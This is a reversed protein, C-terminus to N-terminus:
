LPSKPSKPGTLCILHRIKICKSCGTGPLWEKMSLRGTMAPRLAPAIARVATGRGPGNCYRRPNVPMHLVPVVRIRSRAMYGITGDATRVRWWSGDQPYTTFVEGRNVRAVVFADASPGGRVNTFGDPDDITAADTFTGDTHAARPPPAEVAQPPPAAPVPAVPALAVAQPATRNEIPATPTGGRSWLLYGVILLALVLLGVLL